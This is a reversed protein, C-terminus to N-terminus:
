RRKKGRGTGACYFAACAAFGFLGTCLFMVAMGSGKGSGVLVCLMRALGSSGAMFPELVREALFGGLFIGLPITMYQLANRAAFVRGQMEKPVSQYLLLNQEAAVFPIPLSAALAAFCWFYANQGLGMTLDGLLFSLGAPIYIWKTDSEQPKRAAVLLGGAMGGAGLLGSVLGLVQNDGGSRSLIMPVLITEYTLRSLFNLLAMRVVVSFLARSGRLFLLGERATCLLKAEPRTARCSGQEPISIQFLLVWEAAFFTVLDALLVAPVGFFSFVLLGLMPTTVVILSSSISNLGSARTLNGEPTLIGIAVASAPAQVAGAAGEVANMLCIQWVQLGGTAFILMIGLTCAACVLDALFIMQKKPLTDVLAGSFGSVAIYPLYSSFSLLSVSLASGTRTYVWLVLVYSTMASGMQSFSQSAWFLVYSKESFRKM